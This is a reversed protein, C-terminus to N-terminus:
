NLLEDDEDLLDYSDSGDINSEDEKQLLDATFTDCIILGAINDFDDFESVLEIENTYDGGDADIVSVEVDGYQTIAEELIKKLQSAKM